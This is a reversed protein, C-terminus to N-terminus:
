DEKTLHKIQAECMDAWEALKLEAYEQEEIWPRDHHNTWLRKQLNLCVVNVYHYGKQYEM